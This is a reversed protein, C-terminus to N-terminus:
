WQLSERIEAFLKRRNVPKTLYKTAGASRVEAAVKEDAEGSV